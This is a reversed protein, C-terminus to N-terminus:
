EATGGWERTVWYERGRWGGKGKHLALRVRENHLIGYSVMRDCWAKITCVSVGLERGITTANARRDRLLKMIELPTDRFDSRPSRTRSM